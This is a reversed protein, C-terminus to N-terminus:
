DFRNVILSLFVRLLEFHPCPVLEPSWSPDMLGLGPDFGLSPQPSQPAPTPTGSPGTDLGCFGPMWGRADGQMEWLSKRSPAGLWLDGAAGARGVRHKGREPKGAESSSLEGHVPMWSSVPQMAESFSQVARLKQRWNQVTHPLVM